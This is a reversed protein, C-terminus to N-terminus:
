ICVKVQQKFAVRLNEDNALTAAIMGLVYGLAIKGLLMVFCSILMEVTIFFTFQCISTIYKRSSLLLICFLSFKIIHKLKKNFNCM